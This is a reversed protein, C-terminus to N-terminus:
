KSLFDRELMDALRDDISLEGELAYVSRLYRVAGASDRGFYRGKPRPIDKTYRALLEAMISNFYGVQEGVDGETIPLYDRYVSSAPKSRRFEELILVFTEYDVTGDQALGNNSRVDNVRARTVSDYRGSQRIGLLRQLERIYSEKDTINYM